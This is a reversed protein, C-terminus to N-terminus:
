SKRSKRQKASGPKTSAVEIQIGDANINEGEDDGMIEVMGGGRGTETLESALADAEVVM